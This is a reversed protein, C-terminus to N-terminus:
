KDGKAYAGTRTVIKADLGKVNFRVASTVSNIHVRSSGSQVRNRAHHLLRDSGGVDGPQQQSPRNGVVTCRHPTLPAFPVM